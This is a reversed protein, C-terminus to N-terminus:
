QYDKDFYTIELRELFFRSNNSFSVTRCEGLNKFFKGPAPRNKTFSTFDCNWLVTLAQYGFM